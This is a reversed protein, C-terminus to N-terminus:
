LQGKPDPVLIIHCFEAVNEKEEARGQIDVKNLTDGRAGKMLIDMDTVHTGEWLHWGKFYSFPGPHLPM